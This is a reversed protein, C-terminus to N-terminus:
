PLGPKQASRSLLPPARSNSIPLIKLSFSVGSIKVKQSWGGDQVPQFLGRRPRWKSTGHVEEGTFRINFAYTPDGGSALKVCLQSSPVSALQRAAQCFYSNESARIEGPLSLHLASVKPAGRVEWGRGGRGEGLGAGAQERSRSCRQIKGAEAQPDRLPGVRGTRRPDGGGDKRSDPHAERRLPSRENARRVDTQVPRPLSELQRGLIWSGRKPALARIKAAAPGSSLGSERGAGRPPTARRPRARRAMSCECGGGGGGGGGPPPPGPAGGGGGGGGRQEALPATSHSSAPLWVIPRHSGRCSLLLPLM